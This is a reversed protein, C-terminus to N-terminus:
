QYPLLIDFTSGEGIKSNVKINGGHGMIIKQALALGIGFGNEKTTFFPMFIKRLDEESIGKGNDKIVINMGKDQEKIDIWVKQGAELGNKILNRLAKKLLVEDAKIFIPEKASFIIRDPEEFTKLLDSILETLNTDRKKIPELRSFKLLDEMVSNMEDIEKLIGTIIERKQTDDENISKILLKAYGAIVAMPNRLEHAIGASIEGLVAFREKIILQEKLSKIENGLSQFADLFAETKLDRDEKERKKIVKPIFFILALLFLLVTTALLLYFLIEPNDRM